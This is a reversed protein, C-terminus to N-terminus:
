KPSGPPPYIQSASAGGQGLVREKAQDPPPTFLKVRLSVCHSCPMFVVDALSESSLRRGLGAPREGPSDPPGTSGSVPPCCCATVLIDVWSPARSFGVAQVDRSPVLAEPGADRGVYLGAM